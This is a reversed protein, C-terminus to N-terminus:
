VRRDAIEIFDATESSRVRHHWRIPGRCSWVQPPHDAPLPVFQDNGLAGQRYEETRAVEHELEADFVEIYGKGRRKARYMAFDANRLVASATDGPESQAIGISCSTAVTHFASLVIPDRLENVAATALATAGLADSGLLLVAFEDGGLRAVLNQGEGMRKGLRDAVSRLLVDGAEHGMTDNVVKFDDLDLFMIVPLQHAQLM